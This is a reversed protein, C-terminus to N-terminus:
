REPRGHDLIIGLWVRGWSIYIYIYQYWSEGFRLWSCACTDDGGVNRKVVFVGCVNWQKKSMCVGLEGREHHHLGFCM